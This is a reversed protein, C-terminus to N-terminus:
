SFAAALYKVPPMPSECDICKLRLPVVKYVSWVERYFSKFSRPKLEATM